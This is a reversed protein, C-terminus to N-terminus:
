RKESSWRNHLVLSDPGKEIHVYRVRKHKGLERILALLPPSGGYKKSPGAERMSQIEQDGKMIFRLLLDEDNISLGGLNKRIENLSMDARQERALEKARPM